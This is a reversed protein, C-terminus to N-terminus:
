WATGLVTSNCYSKLGCRLVSARDINQEKCQFLATCCRQEVVLHMGGGKEALTTM